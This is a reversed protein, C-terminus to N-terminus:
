IWGCDNKNFCSPVPVVAGTGVPVSYSTGCICNGLANPSCSTTSISQPATAVSPNIDTCGACINWNGGCASGGPNTLIYCNGGCSPPPCNTIEGSTGPPLVNCSTFAAWSTSLTACVLAFALTFGIYRKM